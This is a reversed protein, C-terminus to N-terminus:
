NRPAGASIWSAVMAIETATLPPAAGVAPMQLGFIGPVGAMKEWLYSNTPDGPIVLTGAVETSGVGVLAGYPDEDLRLQQQFAVSGHCLPQECKSQFLPVLDRTFSPPAAGGAIWAAVVASETSSLGGHAPEPGLHGSVKRWLYSDSSDGAAVLPQMPDAVSPVGVIAARPDHDLELGAQPDIAGHCARQECKTVFVDIIEPFSPPLAGGEIWAGILAVGAAPAPMPQAEIRSDKVMKMYAYSDAADGPDVLLFQGGGETAPVNVLAAWPDRDLALGQQPTDGGHCQSQQCSQELIPVVASFRVATLARAVAQELVQASQEQTGADNTTACHQPAAAAELESFRADLRAAAVALCGTVPDAFLPDTIPLNKLSARQECLLRARALKGVAIQKEAACVEAYHTGGPDLGPDPLLITTQLVFDRVSRRIGDAEGNTLCGLREHRAFAADFVADGDHLCVPDVAAHDRVARAWCKLLGAALAGASKMKLGACRQQPTAAAGVLSPMQVVLLM